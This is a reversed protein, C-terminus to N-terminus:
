ENREDGKKLLLNKLESYKIPASEMDVVFEKIAIKHRIADEITKVKNADYCSVVDIINSVLTKNVNAKFKIHFIVGKSEWYLKEILLKEATRPNDLESRDSKISYAELEGNKKTVLLDTTMRTKDDKPHMIELKHAIAVTDVLDLPFQERIDVVDDQWRLLYYYYVEGQSLLQMSRGHKYDIVNAAMGLSNFDRIKIWPKYDAGHGKGRHQRYRGEETIRPM